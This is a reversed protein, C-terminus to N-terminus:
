VPLRHLRLQGPRVLLRSRGPHPLADVRLGELRRRLSRADRIFRTPNTNSSQSGGYRLPDGRLIAAYPVSDPEVGIFDPGEYIGRSNSHAPRPAPCGVDPPQGPRPFRRRARLPGTSISPRTSDIQEPTSTSAYHAEWHTLTIGNPAADNEAVTRRCVLKSSDTAHAACNAAKASGDFDLELQPTGTVAVEQNFSVTGRM